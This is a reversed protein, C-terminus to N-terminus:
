WGDPLPPASGVADRVKILWASLNDPVRRRGNLWSMVTDHRVNLRRALEASSWGIAKLIEALEDGRM